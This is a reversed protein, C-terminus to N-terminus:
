VAIHAYYNTSCITNMGFSSKIEIFKMQHVFGWM